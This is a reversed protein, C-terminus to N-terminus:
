KKSRIKNRKEQEVFQTSVLYLAKLFRSLNSNNSDIAKHLADISLIYSDFFALTKRKIKYGPDSPKIPDYKNYDYDILGATKMLNLAADTLGTNYSYTNVSIGKKEDRCGVIGDKTKFYNFAKEVKIVLEAKERVNTPPESYDIDNDIDEDSIFSMDSVPKDVNIYGDDNIIYDFYKNNSTIVEIIRNEYEEYLDTESIFCIVPISLTELLQETLDDVIELNMSRYLVNDYITTVFQDKSVRMNNRNTKKYNVM